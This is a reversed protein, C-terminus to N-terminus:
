KKAARLLFNFFNSFVTMLMLLQVFSLIDLKSFSYMFISFLILFSYQVILNRVHSNSVLDCSFQTSSVARLYVILLQYPLITLVYFYDESFLILFCYKIVFFVLVSLLAGLIFTVIFEKIIGKDKKFINQELFVLFAKLSVQLINSIQSGIAYIALVEFGFTAGVFIKDGQSIIKDFLSNGAIKINEFFSIKLHLPTIIRKLKLVEIFYKKHWYFIFIAIVISFTFRLLYTLEYYQSILLFLILPVTSFVFQNLASYNVKNDAILFANTISFTSTFFSLLLIILIVVSSYTEFTYFYM